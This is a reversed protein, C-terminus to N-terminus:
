SIKNTPPSGSQNLAPLTKYLVDNVFTEYYSIDTNIVTFWDKEIQPNCTIEQIWKIQAQPQSKIILLKQLAQLFLKLYGQEQSDLNSTQKLFPKFVDYCDQYIPEDSYIFVGWMYDRVQNSFNELQEYCNNLIVFDNDSYIIDEDFYELIDVNKLFEEKAEESPNFLYHHQIELPKLDMYEMRPAAKGHKLKYLCEIYFEVPQALWCNMRLQAAGIRYLNNDYKIHRTLKSYTNLLNHYPM